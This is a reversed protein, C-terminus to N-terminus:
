TVALQDLVRKPLPKAEDGSRILGKIQSLGLLRHIMGGIPELGPKPGAVAFELIAALNM